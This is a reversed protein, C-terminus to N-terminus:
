ALKETCQVSVYARQNSENNSKATLSTENRDNDNSGIYM